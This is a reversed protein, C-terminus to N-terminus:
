NSLTWYFIIRFYFISLLQSIIIFPQEVPKIGIWTLGLFCLSFRWFSLFKIRTERYQKYNNKISLIIYIAIRSVLAVVGGLKNPIGRLIAYAFLFYWEPQIHTPTVLPNALRFNESDIILYPKAINFLIFILFLLIISTLDKHNFYPFFPVKDIRNNIGIPNSSKNEHLYLLHTIILIILVFPLTFHLRFFRTLTSNNVSFGGWIWIVLNKGWVPVASLLNTIVTAGWFSMQGWPLVYGLFATAISLFLIIVGRNWTTKRNYANFYINRRFHIFIFLFFWRAGNSHILRLIWGRNTDHILHNLSSFSLNIDATYNIALFIGRILQNIIILGLLSGFNWIHRLNRISPLDILSNNLIKLPILNKRTYHM